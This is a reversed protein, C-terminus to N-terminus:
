SWDPAHSAACAPGSHNLSSTRQRRGLYQQSKQVPKFAEERACEQLYGKLGKPVAEGYFPSAAVGLQKRQRKGAPPSAGAFGTFPHMLLSLVFSIGREGFGAYGLGM